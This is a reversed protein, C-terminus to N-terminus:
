IMRFADFLWSMQMRADQSVLTLSGLVYYAGLGRNHIDVGNRVLKGLIKLMSHRIINIPQHITRITTIDEFPHGNPPCIEYRSTQSLGARYIWIDLLEDSMRIIQDISLDMFWQHNAHHGLANIDQFLDLAEMDVMRTFDPSSPNISIIPAPTPQTIKEPVYIIKHLRMITKIDRIVNPPFLVRTYPNVTNNKNILAAISDLGFGYIFGDDKYGFFELLPLQNIDELTMFDTSNICKDRFSFNRLRIYKRHLIGRIIKQIIVAKHSFLLHAYVRCTLDMKNGSLKNIRYRRVLEKLQKISYYVTLLMDYDSFNHVYTNDHKNNILGPLSNNHRKLAVAFERISITNYYISITSIGM